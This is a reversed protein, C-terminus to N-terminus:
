SEVPLLLCFTLCVMYRTSTLNQGVIASGSIVPAVTNTPAPSVNAASWTNNAYVEFISLTTNYRMMGNVPTPRQGTTGNPVTLATTGTFNASQDTNIILASAGNTQFELAGSTDVSETLGSTTASIKSTM